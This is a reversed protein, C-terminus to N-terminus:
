VHARGIKEFAKQLIEKLQAKEINFDVTENVQLTAPTPTEMPFRKLVNLVIFQEIGSSLFTSKDELQYYGIGSGIALNLHHLMQAVQMQGWQRQANPQINDLRALLANFNGKDFFNTDSVKNYPVKM